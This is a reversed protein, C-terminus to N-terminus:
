GSTRQQQEQIRHLAEAPAVIPISEFANLTLLDKDSSVIPDVQAALALALVSALVEDDDPDRCVPDPL